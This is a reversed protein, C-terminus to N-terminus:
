HPRSQTSCVREMKNSGLTKRLECVQREDETDVQPKSQAAETKSTTASRVSDSRTACGTSNILSGCLILTASFDAIRM